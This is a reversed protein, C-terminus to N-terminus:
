DAKKATLDKAVMLKCSLQSRSFHFWLKGKVTSIRSLFSTVVKRSSSMLLWFMTAKGSLEMGVSSLIVLTKVGHRGCFSSWIVVAWV